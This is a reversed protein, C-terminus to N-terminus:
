PKKKSFQISGNKEDTKDLYILAKFLRNRDIHPVYPLKNKYDGETNVEFIKKEFWVKNLFFKKNFYRNLNINIENIYQYIFKIKKIKKCNIEVIKNDYKKKNNQFLDKHIKKLQDVKEEDFFDEIKSYGNISVCKIAEELYSNKYNKM